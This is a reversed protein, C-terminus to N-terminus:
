HIEVLSNERLDQFNIVNEVSSRKTHVCLFENGVTSMSNNM